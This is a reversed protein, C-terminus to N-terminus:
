THLVQQLTAEARAVAESEDSRVRMVEAEMLAQMQLFESRLDDLGTKAAEREATTVLVASSSPKAPKVGTHGLGSHGLVSKSSSPGSPSLGGGVGMLAGPQEIGAGPSGSAGPGPSTAAAVPKGV